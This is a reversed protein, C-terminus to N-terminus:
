RLWEPRKPVHGTETVDLWAQYWAQLEERQEPTLTELWLPSRNVFRFCETERAFRLSENIPTSVLEFHHTEENWWWAKTANFSSIKQYEEETVEVERNADRVFPSKMYNLNNILVKYTKEKEQM